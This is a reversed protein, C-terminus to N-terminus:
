EQSGKYKLDRGDEQQRKQPINVSYPNGGCNGLAQSHDARDQEKHRHPLLIVISLIGYFSRFRYLAIPAGAAFYAFRKRHPSSSSRFPVSTRRIAPRLPTSNRGVLPCAGRSFSKARLPTDFLGDAATRPLLFPRFPLRGRRTAALGISLLLSNRAVIPRHPM